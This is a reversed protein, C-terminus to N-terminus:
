SVGDWVINMDEDYIYLLDDKHKRTLFYEVYAFKDAFRQGLEGNVLEYYWAKGQM